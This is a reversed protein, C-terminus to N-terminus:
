KQKEKEDRDNLYAIVSGTDANLMAERSPEGSFSVSPVQTRAHHRAADSDRSRVAPTPVVIAATRSPNPVSRGCGNNGCRASGNVLATHLTIGETGCRNCRYRWALAPTRRAIQTVTLTGFSKGALDIFGNYEVSM